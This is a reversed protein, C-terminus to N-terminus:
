YKIRDIIFNQWDSSHSITIENKNVKRWIATTNFMEQTYDM